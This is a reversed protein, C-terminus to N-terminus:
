IEKTMLNRINILDQNSLLFRENDIIVRGNLHNVVFNMNDDLIHSPSAHNQLLNQAMRKVTENLHLPPPQHPLCRQCDEIHKLYGFVSIYNNDKDKKIRAYALCGVFKYMQRPKRTKEEQNPKKLDM